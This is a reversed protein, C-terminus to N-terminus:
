SLYTIKNKCFKDVAEPDDKLQNLMICEDSSAVWGIERLNSETNIVQLGKGFAYSSECKIRYQNGKVIFLTKM